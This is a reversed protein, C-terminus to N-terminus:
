CGHAALTCCAEVGGAVCCKQARVVLLVVGQLLVLLLLRLVHLCTDWEHQGQRLLAAAPTRCGLM